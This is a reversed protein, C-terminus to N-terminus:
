VIIGMNVYAYKYVVTYRVLFKNNKRVVSLDIVMQIDKILCLYYESDVFMYTSKILEIIVDITQGGMYGSLVTLDEISGIYLQGSINKGLLENNKIMDTLRNEIGISTIISNKYVVIKRKSGRDDYLGFNNRIEIVPVMHPKSKNKNYIYYSPKM